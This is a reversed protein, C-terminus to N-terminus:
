FGGSPPDSPPADLELEPPTRRDQADALEDAAKALAEPSLELPESEARGELLSRIARWSERAEGVTEGFVVRWRGRERTVSCALEPQQLAVLELRMWYFAWALFRLFTM